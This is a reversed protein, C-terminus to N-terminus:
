YGQTKNGLIEKRHTKSKAEIFDHWNHVNYKKYNTGIGILENEDRNEWSELQQSKELYADQLGKNIEVDNGNLKITFRKFLIDFLKKKENRENHVEQQLSTITHSMEDSKKQVAEAIDHQKELDSKAKATALDKEHKNNLEQIEEQHKKKLEKIQTFLQKAKSVVADFVPRVKLHYHWINENSEPSPLQPFIGENLVESSKIREYEIVADKSASYIKNQFDKKQTQLISAEEELQKKKINLEQEIKNLEEKQKKQNAEELSIIKERKKIDSRVNKKKKTRNSPLEIEGRDLDFHKFVESWMIDQLQSLLEPRGTWHTANLQNQIRTRFIGKEKEKNTRRLMHVTKHIPTIIWHSHISTEDAHSVGALVNESGFVKCLTNYSREFFENEREKPIAGATSTFICEYLGVANKQPKYTPTTISKIRTKYAKMAEEASDVLFHKNQKTLEPDFSNNKFERFMHKLRGITEGGDSLRIKEIRFIGYKKTEM